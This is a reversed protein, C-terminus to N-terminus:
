LTVVDNFGWMQRDQRRKSFFRNVTVLTNCAVEEGTYLKEVDSEIFGLLYRLVDNVLGIQLHLVSVIFKKSSCHGM